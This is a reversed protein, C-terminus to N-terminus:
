HQQEEGKQRACAICLGINAAGLVFNWAREMEGNAARMGKIRLEGCEERVERGRLVSVEEDASLTERMTTM